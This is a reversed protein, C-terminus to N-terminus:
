TLRGLQKATPDGLKYAVWGHACEHVPLATIVVLLRVAVQMAYDSM